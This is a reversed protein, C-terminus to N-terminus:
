RCSSSMIVIAIKLVQKITMYHARVSAKSKCYVMLHHQMRQIITQITLVFVILSYTYNVNANACTFILFVFHKGTSVIRQTDHMNHETNSQEQGHNIQQDNGNAENQIDPPIVKTYPSRKITSYPDSNDDELHQEDGALLEQQLKNNTPQVAVDIPESAACNETPQQYQQMKDPEPSQQQQNSSTRTISNRVPKVPATKTVKSTLQGAATNQAFIAKANNVSSGILQRVEQNRQQRMEEAQTTSREVSPKPM